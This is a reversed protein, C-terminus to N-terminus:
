KESLKQQSSKENLNKKITSISIQPSGKLILM